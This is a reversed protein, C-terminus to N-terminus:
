VTTAEDHKAILTIAELAVEGIAGWKSAVFDRDRKFLATFVRLAAHGDNQM